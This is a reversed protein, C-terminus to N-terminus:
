LVTGADLCPSGLRLRFDTNAADVFLPDDTLNGTGSSCDNTTWSGYQACYTYDRTKTAPATGDMIRTMVDGDNFFISNIAVSAIPGVQGVQIYKWYTTSSGNFYLTCNYFGFTAYRGTCFGSWNVTNSVCYLDYFICSTFSAGVGGYSGSFIGGTDMNAYSTLRYFKCLEFNIKTSSGWYFIANGTSRSVDTFEIGIVSVDINGSNLWQVAAGSGDFVVAGSNVAQVTIDKSFTQNTWTYTGDKCLIVDGNAAVSHAKSITEYPTPETGDGTTDNGTPSIYWNTM